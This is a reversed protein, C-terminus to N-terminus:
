EPPPDTNLYNRLAPFPPSTETYGRVDMCWLGAPLAPATCNAGLNYTEKPPFPPSKTLTFKYLRSKADTLTVTCPYQVSTIQFFHTSPIDKIFPPTQELCFSAQGWKPRKLADPDGLNVSVVKTPDYQVPNELGFSGGVTIILGQSAVHINGVDDDVSFAYSGPMNLYKTDHVLNVYPNFTQYPFKASLSTYELTIYTAHVAKYDTALALDNAAAGGSCHENWPVWGYVHALLDTLTPTPPLPRPGPPNCEMRNVMAYNRLFFGNVTRASLCTQSQDSTTVCYNWLIGLNTIAQGPKEIITKEISDYQKYANYPGPIRLYALKSLPDLYRPWGTFDTLFTGMVQRFQDVDQISGIYGVNDPNKIPGMAVPLYVHDVYSIDYDVNGVVLSWINTTTEHKDVDALTYETLQAPDNAPLAVPSKFITPNHDPCEACYPVPELALPTVPNKVDIGFDKVLEPPPGGM